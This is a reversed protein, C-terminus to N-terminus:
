SPLISVKEEAATAAKRYEVIEQDKKANEHKWRSLERINKEDVVRDHNLMEIIKKLQVIEADKPAEADRVAKKIKDNEVRENTRLSLLLSRNQDREQRMDKLQTSQDELQKRYTDADARINEFQMQTEEHDLKLIAHAEETSKLKKELLTLRDFGRQLKKQCEDKVKNIEKQAKQVDADKEVVSEELRAIKQKLSEEHARNEVLARSFEMAREDMAKEKQILKKILPENKHLADIRDKTTANVGEM